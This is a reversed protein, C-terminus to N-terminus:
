IIGGITEFGTTTASNTEQAVQNATTPSETTSGSAYQNLIQSVEAQAAAQEEVNAAETDYAATQNATSQAGSSQSRSQLYSHLGYALGIAAACAFIVQLYQDFADKM